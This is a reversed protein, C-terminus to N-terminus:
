KYSFKCLYMQVIVIRTKTKRPAHKCSSRLYKSQMDIIHCQKAGLIEPLLPLQSFIEDKGLSTFHNWDVVRLQSDFVSIWSLRLDMDRM